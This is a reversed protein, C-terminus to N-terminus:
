CVIIRRYIHDKSDNRYQFLISKVQRLAQAHRQLSQLYQRHMSAVSATRQEALGAPFATISRRTFSIGAGSAIQRAEVLM